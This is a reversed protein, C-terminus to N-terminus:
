KRGRTATAPKKKDATTAVPAPREPLSDLRARMADDIPGRYKMTTSTAVLLHDPLGTVAWDRVATHNFGDALWVHRGPVDRVAERWAASDAAHLCFTVLGLRRPKGEKRRRLRALNDDGVGYDRGVATLERLSAVSATDYDTWFTLLQAEQNLSQLTFTKGEMDTFSHRGMPRAPRWLRYGGDMLSDVQAMLWAPKATPTLHGLLRRVFLTDGLLRIGDRLMLATRVTAPHALCLSDAMRRRSEVPRRALTDAVAQLWGNLTDAVFTAQGTSDITVEYSGGALAFMTVVHGGPTLLRLEAVDRAEASFSFRGTTDIKVSMMTAADRGDAIVFLNISDAVDGVGDVCHGSVFYTRSIPSEGDTYTGAQGRCGTLMTFCGAAIGITAIVCHSYGGASFRIHPIM